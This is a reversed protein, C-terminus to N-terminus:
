FMTTDIRHFQYVVVLAKLLLKKKQNRYHAEYFSNQSCRSCLKKFCFSISYQQSLDAKVYSCVCFFIGVDEQQCIEFSYNSIITVKDLFFIHSFKEKKFYKWLKYIEFFYFIKKRFDNYEIKEIFDCDQLIEKAQTKERVILHIRQKYNESIAKIYPIQWIM